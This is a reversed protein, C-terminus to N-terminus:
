PTCSKNENTDPFAAMNLTKNVQKYGHKLEGKSAGLCVCLSHFVLIEAEMDTVQGIYITPFIKSIRIVATVNCRSDNLKQIKYV